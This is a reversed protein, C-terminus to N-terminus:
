VVNILQQRRTTLAALVMLIPMFPTKWKLLEQMDIWKKYSTSWLTRTKDEEKKEQFALPWNKRSKKTTQKKRRKLNM